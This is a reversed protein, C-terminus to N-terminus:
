TLASARDEIATRKRSTDLMPLDEDLRYVEVRRRHIDAITAADDVGHWTLVQRTFEMAAEFEPQVVENAGQDALAEVIDATTARAIVAIEPNLDRATRIIVRTAGTDPVTIAITAARTIGLTKLIHEEGADGYAAWVGSARLQRVTAPNIDVVAYKIGRNRLSLALESGIRGYGCILVHGSDFVESGIQSVWRGERFEVFPLKLAFSTLNPAIMLMVPMIVISGLAATLILGYQEADIIQDAVGVGALVFSFEGMQALVIASRTATWHDVGSALLAGGTIIMKGVVLAGVLLLVAGLHDRIVQPELLMGVAVFFLTAFLDRLPAIQAAVQADYESESVVMGALFAGLAFSLGAEHAMAATGLAIVVITLLFLERSGTAAVFELLKPVVRTGVVIVLILAVAATLLSKALTGALNEGGSTLAPLLSLMVVLSLDQVVGIGIAIAAHQSQMEGRSMLVKIAVISSSIAFAGGLLLSAQWSWGIATGVLYGLGITLPIQLGGTILAIRKVRLLEHFSLEVGLAFMLFAVGVNALLEVQHRDAVFGPTNPGIVLGAAIYGIIVPLKIRQAIAGCLLAVGLALFLDFVLRIDEM